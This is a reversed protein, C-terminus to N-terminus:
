YGAGGGGGGGNDGGCAALIVPLLLAGLAALRYLTGRLEFRRLLLTTM